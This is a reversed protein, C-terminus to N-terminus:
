RRKRQSGALLGGRARRGQEVTGMQWDDDQSATSYRYAVTSDEAQGGELVVIEVIADQAEMPGAKGVTVTLIDGTDAKDAQKGINATWAETNFGEVLWRDFDGYLDESENMLRYEM